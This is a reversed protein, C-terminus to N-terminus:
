RTKAKAAKTRAEDRMGDAVGARAGERTGTQTAQQVRDEQREMQRKLADQTATLDALATTIAQIQTGTVADAAYAGAATQEQLRANFAAFFDAVEQATDLDRLTQMDASTALSQFAESSLDLGLGGAIGGVAQLLANREATDNRDAELQLM